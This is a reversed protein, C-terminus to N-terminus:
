KDYEYGVSDRHNTSHGFTQELLGWRYIQLRWFNDKSQQVYSGDHTM